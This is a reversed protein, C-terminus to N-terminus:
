VGHEVLDRLGGAAPAVVAVGSAQAEHAAQCFTEHVGTHVFIDLSAVAASLAAGGQFGLFAAHPLRRELEGRLPGAGIVVLRTGPLDAVGTLLDVQKERALRGVYGVIVEGDPALRRRLDDDRHAPNFREGDVGRAWRAVRRVGQRLLTDVADWSPALTRGVVGHVTALWRWLARETGGLGYRTAFGPLDTQYVAVSPLGIRRAAFAAQAGLVAPAALHIVDPRFARLETVLRPWPTAVRFNPYGPLPVSPARLVPTGLYTEGRGDAAHAGAGSGSGGRGGGQVGGGVQVGGPDPPDTPGRGPAVVMAPHGHASLHELVRCVCNAVGDVRPLFSETVVAVRM